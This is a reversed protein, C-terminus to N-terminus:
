SIKHMCRRGGMVMKNFYDPQENRLIPGAVAKRKPWIHVKHV